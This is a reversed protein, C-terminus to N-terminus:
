RRGTGPPVRPWWARWLGRMAQSGSVAARCVLSQPWDPPHREQDAAAHGQATGQSELCARHEEARAGPCRGGERGPQPKFSCSQTFTSEPLERSAATAGGGRLFTM